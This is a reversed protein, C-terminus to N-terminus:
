IQLNLFIIMQNQYDLNKKVKKFSIEGNEDKCRIVPGYKGIM